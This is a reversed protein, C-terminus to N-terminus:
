RVEFTLVSRIVHKDYDPSSVQEEKEVRVMWIGPATIKIYAIGQENSQTLYAYTGEQLSFRDYTARVELSFPKGKYTIQVPLLDGAKLFYPNILPTIELIQGTKHKFFSDQPSVQGVNIIAKALKEYKGSSLVGTLGKKSQQKWGSTTKTWIMGERHGLLIYTGEAQPEFSGDLTLLQENPKLSLNQKQQSPTLLTIKVKDVPETEESLMFTHASIVQFPNVQGLSLSFYYPKLIFEHALANSIGWLLFFITLFFRKM